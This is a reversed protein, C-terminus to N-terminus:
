QSDAGISPNYNVTGLPIFNAPAAVTAYYVTYAQQDRGSNAWGGYVTINTLDCGYALDPLTYILASGAGNGDGCTVYNTSTTLGATGNILTLGLSGGATLSSVNRGAVEKSFNGTATSPSQGAILSGNTVVTWNPYFTGSGSGTQNTTNIQISRVVPIQFPSTFLYNGSGVNYSAAGNSTGVYTIGPSSAAPLGSETIAAADTTPVYIEATTNAPIAVSLTVVKNTFQWSSAIRGQISDYYGQASTLGGGVQPAVIIKKFGPELLDIGLIGRYFWEACTGFNAHNLSNMSETNVTGDANVSNWREWITTAGLGLMYGWSPYNTKALMQYALDSRGISTLTPLLMYTTNMGTSPHGDQAQVAAVLKPAALTRQAPTLLNFYLALM